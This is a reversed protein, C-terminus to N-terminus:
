PACGAQGNKPPGPAGESGGYGVPQIWPVRGAELETIIKDTIESNRSTRDRRVRSLRNMRSM